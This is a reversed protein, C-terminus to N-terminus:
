FYNFNAGFHNRYIKVITDPKLDADDYTITFDQHIMRM